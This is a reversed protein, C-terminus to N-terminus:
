SGSAPRIPILVENRRLFWPTFPSNYRAYEPPGSAELGREAIFSRLREEHEAFRREDWTGSFRIAAMRRAPVQRLSVREDTPQPATEWSYSSPLLFAVRWGDRAAEQTVPATMPIEVSQAEQTVPATMEIKEQRRNDGSIYRFLRRFASTGADEFSGAVEVEALISPEYDRLEIDGHAEAVTYAPEEIAGAPAAMVVGAAAAVAAWALKKMAM